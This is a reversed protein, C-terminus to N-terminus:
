SPDGVDHPEVVAQLVQVSAGGSNPANPIPPIICQVSSETHIVKALGRRGADLAQSCGCPLIQPQSPRACFGLTGPMPLRPLRTMSTKSSARQPRGSKSITAAVGTARPWALESSLYSESPQVKLFEGISAGSFAYLTTHLIHSCNCKCWRRNIYVCTRLSTRGILNTSSVNTHPM